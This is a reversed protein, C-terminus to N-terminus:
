LKFFLGSLQLLMCRIILQPLFPCTLSSDFPDHQDHLSSICPALTVDASFAEWSITVEPSVVRPLSHTQTQAVPGRSSRLYLHVDIGKVLSWSESPARMQGSRCLAASKEIVVLPGM